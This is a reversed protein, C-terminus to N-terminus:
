LSLHLKPPVHEGLHSPKTPESLGKYGKFPEPTM